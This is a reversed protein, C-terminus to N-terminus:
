PCVAQPGPPRPQTQMRDEKRTEQSKTHAETWESISIARYRYEHAHERDRCHSGLIRQYLERQRSRGRGRHQSRVDRLQRDIQDRESAPPPLGVFEGAGPTADADGKRADNSEDAATHSARQKFEM